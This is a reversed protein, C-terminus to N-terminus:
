RRLKWLEGQEGCIFITADPGTAIGHLNATTFSALESWHRGADDTYIVAGGEGVAYGQQLNIFLIDQLRYKKHTIDNGNRLTEWTRGGDSTRAISGEGGCTYASEPGTIFVATYNDNKLESWQWNKGGNRTYQMVGYGCRYGIGSALIKIDNLEYGLSDYAVINGATDVNMADGRYFSIGGVCQALGADQFAIAKYPEYRLQHRIWSIGHDNSRLLNGDFGICYIAGSPSRCIGFLEKNTNPSIFLQWTLGGDATKLIDAEDFRSGGVCFGLTDNVFLIDNLRNQTHTELREVQSPHILDKTCSALLFISCVMVTFPFLRIFTLINRLFLGDSQIAM